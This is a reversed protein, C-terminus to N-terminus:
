KNKDRNENARTQKEASNNGCNCYQKNYSYCTMGYLSVVIFFIATYNRSYTCRFINASKHKVTLKNISKREKKRERACMYGFLLFGGKGGVILCPIYIKTKLSQAVVSIIINSEATIKCQKQKAKKIQHCNIATSKYYFYDGMM